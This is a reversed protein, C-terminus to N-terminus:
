KTVEARILAAAGYLAMEWGSQQEDNGAYPSQMAELLKALREREANLIDISSYECPDYDSM